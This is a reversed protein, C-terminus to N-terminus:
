LILISSVNFYLYILIIQIVIIKSKKKIQVGDLIYNVVTKNVYFITAVHITYYCILLMLIDLPILLLLATAIFFFVNEM